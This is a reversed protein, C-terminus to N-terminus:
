VAGQSYERLRERCLAEGDQRTWLHPFPSLFPPMSIPSRPAPAIRWHSPLTINDGSSLPSVQPETHNISKHLTVALWCCLQQIDPWQGANGWQAGPLTHPSLTHKEKWTVQLSEALHKLQSTKPLSSIIGPRYNLFNWHTHSPAKGCWWEVRHAGLAGWSVLCHCVTKWSCDCFSMVWTQRQFHIWPIRKFSFHGSLLKKLHCIQSSKKLSERAPGWSGKWVTHVNYTAYERWYILLVKPELSVEPQIQIELRPDAWLYRSPKSCSSIFIQTSDSCPHVELPFSEEGVGVLRSNM